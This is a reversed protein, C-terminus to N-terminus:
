CHVIMREKLGELLERNILHVAVNVSKPEECEEGVKDEDETGIEDEL